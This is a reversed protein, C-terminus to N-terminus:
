EPLGVRLWPEALLEPMPNASRLVPVVKFLFNYKRESTRALPEVMNAVRAGSATLTLVLLRSVGWHTKHAQQAIIESYASLKRQVSSKGTKSRVVPM